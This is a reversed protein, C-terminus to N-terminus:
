RLHKEILDLFLAADEDKEFIARALKPSGGGKGKYMGAYEKVLAGCAPTGDSTLIVTHLPKSFLALVGTYKKEMALSLRQLDDPTFSDYSATNFHPNGSSLAEELKKAEADLLLKKLSVLEKKVANNKEEQAALSKKLLGYETSYSDCIDM